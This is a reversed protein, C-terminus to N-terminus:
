TQEFRRIRALRMREAGDIQPSAPASRKASCTMASSASPIEKEEDDDDDDLFIVKNAPAPTKNDQQEDNCEDGSSDMLDVVANARAQEEGRKGRHGRKQNTKQARSNEHELLLSLRKAKGLQDYDEEDDEHSASNSGELMSLQIAQQIQQQEIAAATAGDLVSSGLQFGGGSALLGILPHHGASSSSGGGFMSSAADVSSNDGFRVDRLRSTLISQLITDPGPLFPAAKETKIRSLFALRQALEDRQQQQQQNKSIKSQKHQLFAEAYAKTTRFTLSRRTDNAWPAAPFQRGISALRKETQYRVGHKWDYRAAGRLIYISRRPVTVEVALNGSEATILETVVGPTTAEEYDGATWEQRSVRGTKQDKMKVPTFFMTCAAGLSVGIIYEGWLHRSDLHKNIGCGIPYSTPLVYDPFCDVDPIGAGDGQGFVDRLLNSLRWLNPDDNFSGYCIHAFGHHDDGWAIKVQGIFNKSNVSRKGLHSWLAPSEFLQREIDESFAELALELGPM